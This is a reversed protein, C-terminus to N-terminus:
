GACRHELADGYIGVHRAVMADVRLHRHCWARAAAGLRAALADDGLVLELADALADADAPPVLVGRDRLLEATGGVDTAVTPKGAAMAEMVANSMGETLSPLVSVDARSLWRDVDTRFGLFRVDIGLGRALAELTTREPGDGILVLTCDAGRDRLHAVAELLYRHGKYAFLNAVCLIVPATTTLSAPPTNVFAGEPIGNYVVVIKQAPVGGFEHAEAAVADANAIVLDAARTAARGLAQLVTRDRRRDSLGRLGAVFVPVRALKAAPATVIYSHLLFAHLVDPRERRLLFVLRALCGLNHVGAACLGWVVRAVVRAKALGAAERIAGGTSMYRFGLRVVRVGVAHLEEERPGGTFMVLVAVRVGRAHLGRALLVIQKEAGGLGLQGIALFVCRPGGDGARTDPARSRSEDDIDDM